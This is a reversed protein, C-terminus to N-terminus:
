IKSFPTEIQKKNELDKKEFYILTVLMLFTIGMSIIIKDVKM